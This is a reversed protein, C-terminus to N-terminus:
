KITYVMRRVELTLGLTIHVSKHCSIVSESVHRIWVTFIVPELM